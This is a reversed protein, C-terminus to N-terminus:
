RVVTVPVESREVLGKAVSGLAREARESLGRHGVFVGDFEESAAFEAISEVPDGYLLETRSSADSAAVLDSSEELVRLGRDEADDESEQILSGEADEVDDVDEASSMNDVEQRVVHALTLEAGAAEAVTVAHELVRDGHRSGDVAVVFRM